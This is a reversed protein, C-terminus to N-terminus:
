RVRPRRRHHRFPPSQVSVTHNDYKCRSRFFMLTCLSLNCLISCSSALSSSSSLNTNSSISVKLSPDLYHLIRTPKRNNKTGSHYNISSLAHRGTSAVHSETRTLTLFCKGQSTVRSWIKRTFTFLSRMRGMRRMKWGM